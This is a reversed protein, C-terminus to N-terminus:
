NRQGLEDHKIYYCLLPACEFCSNYRYKEMSGKNIREEVEIFKKRFETINSYGLM